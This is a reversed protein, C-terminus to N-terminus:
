VKEHNTSKTIFSFPCRGVPGISVIIRELSQRSETGNDKMYEYIESLTPLPTPLRWPLPSSLRQGNAVDLSLVTALYAAKEAAFAEYELRMQRPYDSDNIYEEVSSAALIFGGMQEMSRGVRVMQQLVEVAKRQLEEVEYTTLDSLESDHMMLEFKNHQMGYRRLGQELAWKDDYHWINASEPWNYSYYIPLQEEM